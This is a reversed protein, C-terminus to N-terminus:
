AVPGAPPRTRVAGARCLLMGGAGGRLGRFHPQHGSGRQGRGGGGARRDARRQGDDRAHGAGRGRARRALGRVAAGAGHPQVHRLRLGPRLRRRHAARAPSLLSIALFGLGAGGLSGLLVTWPTFRRTFFSILLRSVASALAFSGVIWGIHASDLGLQLGYLPMLFTFLQMTASGFLGVAFIFRLEARAAAGAHQEPRFCQRSGTGAAARAHSRPQHRHVRHPHPPAARLVLFTEPYGLERFGYGVGLPGAFNAVSVGLGSWGFMAVRDAPGTLRGLLPQFAIFYFNYMTGVAASVIFLAALDRWVFALACGAVMIWSSILMPRRPGVRDAWRGAVVSTLMAFISFAGIVAGVQLPTAGLKVAYLTLGFNVGAWCCHNTSTVVIWLLLPRINKV